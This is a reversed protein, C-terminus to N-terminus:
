LAKGGHRHARTNNYNRKLDIIKYFDYGHVEVYKEIGLLLASMLTGIEEKSGTATPDAFMALIVNQEYHFELPKLLKMKVPDSEFGVKLMEDPPFLPWKEYGALDFGRIAADILEVGEGEPKWEAIEGEPLTLSETLEVEQGTSKNKVYVFPKKDRVAESAEAIESSMLQLAERRSRTYGEYWGKAKSAEYCEQGLQDYRNM